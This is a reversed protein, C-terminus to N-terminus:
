RAELYEMRLGGEDSVGRAIARDGVELGHFVQMVRRVTALTQEDPPPYTFISPLYARKVM